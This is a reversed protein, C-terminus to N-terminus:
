QPVTANAYIVSYAPRGQREAGEGGIQPPASPTAHLASPRESTRM